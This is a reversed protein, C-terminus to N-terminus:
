ALHREVERKGVDSARRFATAVADCDRMPVGLAEFIERWTRMAAVIGGILLAARAPFLGFARCGDIRHLWRYLVPLVRWNSRLATTSSCAATTRGRARSGPTPTAPPTRRTPTAVPMPAPAAASCCPWCCRRSSRLLNQIGDCSTSLSAPPSRVGFQGDLDPRAERVRAQMVFRALEAAAGLLGALVDLDPVAPLALPDGAVRAFRLDREGWLVSLHGRAAAHEQQARDRERAACAQLAQATLSVSDPRAGAPLRQRAAASAARGEDPAAGV